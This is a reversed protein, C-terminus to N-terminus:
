PLLKLKKAAAIRREITRESVGERDALEGVLVTHKGKATRFHDAVAKVTLSKAKRLARAARHAAKARKPAGCYLFHGSGKAIMEIWADRIQGACAAANVDDFQYRKEFRDTLSTAVCHLREAAEYAESQGGVNRWENAMYSDLPTLLHERITAAYPVRERPQREAMCAHLTAAAHDANTVDFLDAWVEVRTLRPLATVLGHM